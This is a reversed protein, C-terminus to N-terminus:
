NESVTFKIQKRNTRQKRNRRGAKEIIVEIYKLLRNLNETPKETIGRPM